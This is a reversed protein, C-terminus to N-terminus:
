ISNLVIASWGELRTIQRKLQPVETWFGELKDTELVFVDGSVEMIYFLGLHVCGVADSDDNILGVFSLSAEEEIRVEERLERKLGSLLIDGAEDPPDPNIHGGIGISLMGHLRTEFGKSLRRTTFVSGGRRIAAYPIIQRYDPNQEADQRPMFEYSSLILEIAADLNETILGRFTLFPKLIESKVVLVSEMM